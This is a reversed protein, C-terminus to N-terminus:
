IEELSTLIMDSTHGGVDKKTPRAPTADIVMRLAQANGEMVADGDIGLLLPEDTVLLGMIIYRHQPDSKSGKKGHPKASSTKRIVLKAVNM